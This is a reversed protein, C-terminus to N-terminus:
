AWGRAREVAQQWRAFSADRTAADLQPEFTTAAGGLPPLAAVEPWVGAGLGGLLAAARVSTETDAARMLPLGSLDAQIQCAADSAAMGGGVYLADIAVDGQVRMLDLIERLQHGIAELFARAIHAPRTDLTMGLITARASRDESPVGMGTFAPVFAVGAADPVSLALPGLEQPRAIFGMQEQMWRIAAGSVTTDAELSYTPQGALEWALYTKAVGPAPPTHGAVINVFSNTGHTCAGQGRARCDYGFLAAQQDAIMALVPVAAEDGDADRLYIEGFPHLTPAPAPLAAQPIALYELWPEWLRRERFDFVTMGQL